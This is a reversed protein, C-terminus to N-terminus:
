DQCRFRVAGEEGAGSKIDGAIYANDHRRLIDPEGVLDGVTIRGSYILDDDRDMAERTMREKEDGRFTSLDTFPVELGEIVEKEFATGKEWLLKVFPSRPARDKYDGFLDLTVRHPCQALNYLMSSTIKSM